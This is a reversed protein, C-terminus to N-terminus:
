REGRRGEREGSWRLRVHRGGEGRGLLGEERQVGRVGNRGRLRGLEDAIGLLRGEEGVNDSGSKGVVGGLAFRGGAPVLLLALKKEDDDALAGLEVNRAPRPECGNNSLTLEPPTVLNETLREGMCHLSHQGHRPKSTRSLHTTGSRPHIFLRTRSAEYGSEASCPLVKSYM